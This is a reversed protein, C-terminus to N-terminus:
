FRRFIYISTRKLCGQPYDGFLSHTSLFSMEMFGGLLSCQGMDNLQLEMTYVHMTEDGQEKGFCVSFRLGQCKSV